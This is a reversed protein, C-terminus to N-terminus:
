ATGGDLAARLDGWMEGDYSGDPRKHDDYWRLATELQEVRARLRLVEDALTVLSAGGAILDAEEARVHEAFRLATDVRESM